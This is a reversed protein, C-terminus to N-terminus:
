GNLQLKEGWKVRVNTQPLSEALLESYVLLSGTFQGARQDTSTAAVLSITESSNQLVIQLPVISPTALDTDTLTVHM